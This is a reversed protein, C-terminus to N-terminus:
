CNYPTNKIDGTYWDYTIKEIVETGEDNQKRTKVIRRYMCAKDMSEFEFMVDSNLYNRMDFLTIISFRISKYNKLISPLVM